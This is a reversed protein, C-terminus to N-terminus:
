HLFFRIFWLNYMGYLTHTPTRVHIHCWDPGTQCHCSSKTKAKPLLSPSSFLTENAAIFCQLNPQWPTRTCTHAHGSRISRCRWSFSWNSNSSKQFSFSSFLKIKTPTPNSRYSHHSTKLAVGTNHWHPDGYLLTAYNSSFPFWANWWQIVMLQQLNRM